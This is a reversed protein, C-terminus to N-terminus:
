KSSKKIAEDLKTGTTEPVSSSSSGQFGSSLQARMDEVSMHAPDQGLSSLIVQLEGKEMDALVAPDFDFRSAAVQKPEEQEPLEFDVELTMLSDSAILMKLEADSIDLPVLQGPLYM